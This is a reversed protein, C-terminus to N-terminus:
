TVQGSDPWWYKRDGFVAGGGIVRVVVASTGEHGQEEAGAGLGHAPATPEGEWRHGPRTM